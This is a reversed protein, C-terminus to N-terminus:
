MRLKKSDYGKSRMKLWVEGIARMRKDKEAGQVKQNQVLDVVSEYGGTNIIEDLDAIMKEDILIRDDSSKDKKREELLARYYGNPWWLFFNNVLEIIRGNLDLSDYKAKRKAILDDARTSGLGRRQMEECYNQIGEYARETFEDFERNISAIFQQKEAELNVVSESPSKRTDSM